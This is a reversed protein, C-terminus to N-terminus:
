SYIVLLNIMECIIYDNCVLTYENKQSDKLAIERKFVRSKIEKNLDFFAKHLDNNSAQISNIADVSYLEDFFLFFNKGYVRKNVEKFSSLIDNSM